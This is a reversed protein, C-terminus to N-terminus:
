LMTSLSVFFSFISNVKGTIHLVKIVIMKFEFTKTKDNSTKNKKKLKEKNKRESICFLEIEDVNKNLFLLLLKQLVDKTGAEVKKHM